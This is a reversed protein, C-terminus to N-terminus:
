GQFLSIKIASLKAAIAETMSIIIILDVTRKKIAPVNTVQNPLQFIEMFQM